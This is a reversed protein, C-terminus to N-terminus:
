AVHDLSDQRDREARRSSRNPSVGDTGTFALLRYGDYKPELM